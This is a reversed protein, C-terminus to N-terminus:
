VGFDLSMVVETRHSPLQRLAMKAAGWRAARDRLGPLAGLAREDNLKLTVLAGRPPRRLLGLLREIVPVAVQPALNMDCLLWEVTKPLDGRSLEFASQQLITLPLRRARAFTAVSPALEAPDVAVVELGLELCRLVAGGPAAGLELAREGAIPPATFRAFGEAAKAYARSPAGTPLQAREFDEARAPDFFRAVRRGVFFAGPKTDALAFVEIALAGEVPPGESFLGTARLAQEFSRSAAESEPVAADTGGPEDEDRPLRAVLLHPKAAEDLRGVLGLIEPIERAFGLSVGDSQTLAAVLRFDPPLAGPAKWTVLGSAGFAFRLDPHARAIELKHLRTSKPTLTAYAFGSM